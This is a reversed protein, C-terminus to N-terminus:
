YLVGDIIVNKSYTSCDWSEDEDIFRIETIGVNHLM